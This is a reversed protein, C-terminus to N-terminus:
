SPRLFPLWIGVEGSMLMLLLGALFIVLLSVLVSFFFKRIGHGRLRRLSAQLVLVTVTIGPLPGALMVGDRGPYASLIIGALTTLVTLLLGWFLSLSPSLEGAFWRVIGARSQRFIRRGEERLPFISVCVHVVMTLLFVGGMLFLTLDGGGASLLGPSM